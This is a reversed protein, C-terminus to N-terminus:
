GIPVCSCSAEDFGGFGMQQCASFSLECAPATPGRPDRIIIEPQVIDPCIKPEFRTPSFGFAQFCTNDVAYLEKLPYFPSDRVPSGADSEIFYDVYDLRNVDKLGADAMVAYMFSDGSFTKKFAFQVTALPGANIRIWALDIDDGVGELPSSILKDYGNGSFPADSRVPSAGASDHNTDSYIKINDATWSESYPPDAVILFDGFSDLDTDLELAYRISPSSNPNNGVLGISVFYWENDESISFAMIDMDPIYTMDQTFPRELRNNAYSDGYPARKEPATDVSNVDPYPESEPASIPIAQHEIVVPASTPPEESVPPLTPEVVPQTATVPINCGQMLLLFIVAAFLWNKKSKM